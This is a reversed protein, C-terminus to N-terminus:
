IKFKNIGKRISDQIKKIDSISKKLKNDINSIKNTQLEEQVNDRTIETFKVVYQKCIPLDCKRSYENCFCEVGDENFKVWLKSFM